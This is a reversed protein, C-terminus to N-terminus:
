NVRQWAAGGEALRELYIGLLRPPPWAEAGRCAMKALGGCAFHIAVRRHRASRAAVQRLAPDATSATRLRERFEAVTLPEDWLFYPIAKLDGLDTSLLVGQDANINM